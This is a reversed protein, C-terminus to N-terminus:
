NVILHSNKVHYNCFKVIVSSSIIDMKTNWPWLWLGRHLSDRLHHSVIAVLIIWGIYEQSACNKYRMASIYSAIGLIMLTSNHFPPRCPLSVAASLSFSKAALFHDIDIAGACFACMLIYTIKESTFNEFSIVILWSIAGLCIHTLNDVVALLIAIKQVKDHYFVYDGIRSFMWLLIFLVIQKLIFNQHHLWFSNM